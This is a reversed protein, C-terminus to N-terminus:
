SDNKRLPEGLVKYETKIFIWHKGFGLVVLKHFKRSGDSPFYEFLREAAAKVSSRRSTVLDKGVVLKIM